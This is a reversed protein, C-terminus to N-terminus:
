CVCGCTNLGPDVQWRPRPLLTEHCCSLMVIVQLCEGAVGNNVHKPLRCAAGEVLVGPSSNSHMHPCLAEQCCGRGAGQNKDGDARTRQRSAGGVHQKRLAGAAWLDASRVCGTWVGNTIFIFKRFTPLTQMRMRTQLRSELMMTM